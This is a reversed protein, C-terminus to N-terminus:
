NRGVTLEAGYLDVGAAFADTTDRSIQLTLVKGVSCGTDVLTTSNSIVLAHPTGPAMGTVVQAQVGTVDPDADIFAPNVDGAGACKTELLWRVEASLAGFNPQTWYLVVDV